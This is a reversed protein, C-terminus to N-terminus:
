SRHKERKPRLIRLARNESVKLRYEERLIAEIVVSMYFTELACSGFFSLHFKLNLKLFM